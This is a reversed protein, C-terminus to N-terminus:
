DIKPDKMIQHETPALAGHQLGYKSRYHNLKIFQSKSPSNDRKANIGCRRIDKKVNLSNQNHMNGTHKM